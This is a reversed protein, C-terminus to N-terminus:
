NIWTWCSHVTCRSESTSPEEDDKKASHYYQFSWSQVLALMSQYKNFQPFTFTNTYRLCTYGWVQTIKHSPLTFIDEWFCPYNFTLIIIDPFTMTDGSVRSQSIKRGANCDRRDARSFHIHKARWVSCLLCGNIFCLARNIM